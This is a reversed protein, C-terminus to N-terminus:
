FGLCCFYAVSNNGRVTSMLRCCGQIEKLTSVVGDITSKASSDKEENELGFQGALNMLTKGMSKISAMTKKLPEEVEHAVYQVLLLSM